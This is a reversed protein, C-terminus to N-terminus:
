RIVAIRGWYASRQPMDVKYLYVGAAVPEGAYNDTDWYIQGGVQTEPGLENVKDGATTFVRVRSGVPLNTIGVRVGEAGPFGAGLRVPNPFAYIEDGTDPAAAPENILFFERNGAGVFPSGADGSWRPSFLLSASNNEPTNLATNGYDFSTVAYYYGFGNYIEDDFFRVTDPTDLDFCEARKAAFCRPVVEYREDGCYGVICDEPNVRDYLGVMTMNDPDDAPSRWVAWGQYTQAVVRFTNGIEMAGAGITLTLGLNLRRLSPPMTDNTYTDNLPLAEGAQYLGGGWTGLVLDGAEDGPLLILGRNIIPQSAAYSWTAGGDDSRLLGHNDEFVALSGLRGPVNVIAFEQLAVVQGPQVGPELAVKTWIEGGDTSRYLGDQLLGVIITAPSGAVIVVSRANRVWAGRADPDPDPVNLNGYLDHWTLGGDTTEYCGHSRLAAVMRNPDAPDSAFDEVSPIETRVPRLADLDPPVLFDSKVFAAGDDTSVFVGFLPLAVVLRTPTWELASVRYSDQLVSGPYLDSTWNKFTQGGDATVYLGRASTGVAFHDNNVPSIAIRTILNNADFIDAAVREWTGGAYRFLGVPDAQLASGRTFGAVMFGGTGRALATLNAQRWTMPLDDNTQYWAGSLGSSDDWQWVGGNNSLNLVGALRGNTSSGESVWSVILNQGQVQGVNGDAEATFLLQRDVSDGFGGTVTVTSGLGEADALSFCTAQERDLAPWSLEVGARGVSILRNRLVEPSYLYLSDASCAAPPTQAPALSALCVFVAVAAFAVRRRMGHWGFIM